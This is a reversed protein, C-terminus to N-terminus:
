CSTTGVAAQLKKYSRMAWSKSSFSGSFISTGFPLLAFMAMHGETHPAYREKSMKSTRLNLDSVFSM